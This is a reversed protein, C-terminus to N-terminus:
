KEFEEETEEEIIADPSNWEVRANGYWNNAWTSPVEDESLATKIVLSSCGSFAGAEIVKVSSPLIIERLGTCGEFANVGIKWLGENLVISELSSCGSFAGNEIHTVTEPIEIEALSRCGSFAEKGIHILGDLLYIKTIYICDSFANERIGLVKKEDYYAGLYVEGNLYKYAGTIEAYNQEDTTFYVIGSTTEYEWIARIVMNKTVRKYPASWSHLFAGDKVVVPPTADQGQTIHQEVSGSILTGGDLDFKVVYTKKGALFILILLVAVALFLISFTIIIRSRGKLFKM